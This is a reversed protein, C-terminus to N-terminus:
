AAAGRFLGPEPLTAPPAVVTVFHAGTHSPPICSQGDREGGIPPPLTMSTPGDCTLRSGILTQM